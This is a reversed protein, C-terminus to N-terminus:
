SVFEEKFKNLVAVAHSKVSLRLTSYPVEPYASWKVLRPADGDPARMGLKVITAGPLVWASEHVNHVVRSIDSLARRWDMKAADISDVKAGATRMAILISKKKMWSAEDMYAIAESGAIGVIKERIARQDTTVKTFRNDVYMDVVRDIVRELIGGLLSRAIKGVTPGLKETFMGNVEATLTAKVSKVVADRSYPVAGAGENIREFRKLEVRRMM